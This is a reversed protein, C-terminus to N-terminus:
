AAGKSHHHAKKSQAKKRQAKKRQAKKLQTLEARLGAVEDRLGAVEGRLQDVDAIRALGLRVLSKELEAGVSRQLLERNAKQAAILEEALAALNTM